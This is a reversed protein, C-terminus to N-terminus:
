INLRAPSAITDTLSAVGRAIVTKTTHYCETHCENIKLIITKRDVCSLHCQHEKCTHTLGCIQRGYGCDLQLLYFTVLMHICMHFCHDALISSTM